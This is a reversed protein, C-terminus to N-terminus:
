LKRTRFTTLNRVFFFVRGHTPRITDVERRCLASDADHDCSGNPRFHSEGQVMVYVSLTYDAPNHKPQPESGCPITFEDHVAIDYWQVRPCSSNSDNLTETRDFRNDELRSARLVSTLKENVADGAKELRKRDGKSIKLHFYFHVHFPYRPKLPPTAELFTAHPYKRIPSHFATGCRIFTHNRSSICTSLTFLTMTTFAPFFWPNAM